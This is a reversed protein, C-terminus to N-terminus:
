DCHIRELNYVINDDYPQNPEHADYKIIVDESLIKKGQTRFVIFKTKEVNVCMKNARFWVAM